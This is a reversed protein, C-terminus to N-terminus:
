RGGAPNPAPHGPPLWGSPRAHPFAAGPLVQHMRDVTLHSERGGHRELFAVQRHQHGGAHHAGQVQGAVLPMGHQDLPPHDLHDILDDLAIGFVRLHHDLAEAVAIDRGNGRKRLLPQLQDLIHIRQRAEHALVAVLDGGMGQDVVLRDVIQLGAFGLQRDQFGQTLAALRQGPLCFGPQEGRLFMGGDGRCAGDAQVARGVQLAFHPQPLVVM